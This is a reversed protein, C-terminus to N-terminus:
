APVIDAIPAGANASQGAKVHLAEVTGSQHAAIENEMKMAEIVCILQGQEVTVGAEVAVSLVTGQIPSTLTNGTAMVVAAGPRRTARHPRATAGAPVGSVAGDPFAVRYPRGNVEVLITGDGPAGAAEQVVFPAIRSLIGSRELFGTDYDGSAFAPHRILAQYLPITTAVGEVEFDRLARALRSLAEERDRGWVILKAILSDFRPDIEGGAVFGTDIRVGFGAPAIFSRLTGPTPQFDRGPDEANVRCEIAHGWPDPARDFSLREGAGIRLQERVLDIGTVLETVPHEVQIRTNMELFYHQGDQVLFEVTGASVYGVARALIEAALNMEARMAADIVPSPSEEVLKQHRRQISCDREGLAVVNGHRDAMVQIEIHRPHDLYKEAYVVPDNFYRAAEGSAGRFAEDVQDSSRAVRLGRGGGGSAAKLAIPYGVRDGFARAMEADVAGDTGPVVNVGADLAASRARVKDGMTAIASAPPGIFVFGAQECADAFAANEALFGYGPHIADVNTETAVRLVADIDLYPLPHESELTVCADAYRAHLSDREGDSVVAVSAIGEERCARMVRIAIEGRNAVLVKRIPRTQATM